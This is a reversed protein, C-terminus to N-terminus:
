RQGKDRRAASWRIGVNDLWALIVLAIIGLFFGLLFWLGSSRGKRNAMYAATIACILSYVLGVLEITM